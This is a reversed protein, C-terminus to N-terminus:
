LLGLNNLAVCVDKALGLSRYEALSAEYHRRAEDLDGRINAIVGLNQATMAALKADHARLARARAVLYLREAEDLDGQQWRVVAEINIAHGAAAEDGWAEAVAIAAAICDLASDMDADVQYTRAIWRLVASARHGDAETGLHHLALEYRERAQARQGRREAAQGEEVLQDFSKGQDM